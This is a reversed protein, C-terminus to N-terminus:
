AAATTQRGPASPTKAIPNGALQTRQQLMCGIQCCRDIELLNRVERGKLLGSAAQQAVSLPAASAQCSSEHRWIAAFTARWPRARRVRRCRAQLRMVGAAIVHPATRFASIGPLFGGVSAEGLCPDQAIGPAMQYKRRNGAASRCGVYRVEARHKVLRCQRPQGDVGLDGVGAVIPLVRVAKSAFLPAHAFREDRRRNATLGCFRRLAVPSPLHLM